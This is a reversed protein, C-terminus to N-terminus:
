AKLVARIGELGHVGQKNWAEWFSELIGQMKTSKNFFVDQSIFASWADQLIAFAKEAVYKQSLTAGRQQLKDPHLCLRAKQYAKKVQSSEALSTLDIRHWGSNAWLIDHLTSLLMRINNENGSSWHKVDQDKEEETKPKRPKEELPSQMTQDNEHERQTNNYREKAWAIAEDISVAEESSSQRFDSNIEIVYSSMGDEDDEDDDYEDESLPNTQVRAITEPEQSFCSSLSSPSNFESDDALSIKISSFSHPELSITEPSSTRKNFRYLSSSKMPNDIRNENEMHLNGNYFSATSPFPPMQQQQEQQKSPEQNTTSNWRLKPAFYSSLGFDDGDTRRLGSMEQWSMVSSSDSETREWSSRRLDDDSEFIDTSFSWEVKAPIRFAPLSRGGKISYCSSFDLPGFAEDYFSASQTFDDTFERCLVSRPPGGFVDSFDHDDAMFVSSNKQFFGTNEMSKRHPFNQTISVGVCMRWYEEM